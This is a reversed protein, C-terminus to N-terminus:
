TSLILGAHFISVSGFILSRKGGKVYPLPATGPEMHHRRGDIQGTM